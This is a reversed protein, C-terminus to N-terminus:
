DEARRAESKDVGLHTEALQTKIWVNLVRESSKQYHRRGYSLSFVFLQFIGDIAPFSNFLCKVQLDNTCIFAAIHNKKLQIMVMM